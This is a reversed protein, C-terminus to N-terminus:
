YPGCFVLVSDTLVTRTVEGRLLRLRINPYEGVSIRSVGEVLIWRDKVVGVPKGDKDFFGAFGRADGGVDFAYDVYDWADPIGAGDKTRERYQIVITGEAGLFSGSKSATKEISEVDKAFIRERVHWFQAGVEHWEFQKAEGGKVTVGSGYMVYKPPWNAGEDFFEVMWLKRGTDFGINAYLWDQM